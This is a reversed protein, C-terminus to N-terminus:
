ISLPGKGSADNTKYTGTNEDYILFANNDKQLSIGTFQAVVMSRFGTAKDGDALMGCMGWVSRLSVNFIYPSSSNVTNIELSVVGSVTNATTPSHIM